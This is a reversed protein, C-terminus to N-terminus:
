DNSYYYDAKYDLVIRAKPKNAAAAYIALAEKISLQGIDACAMLYGGLHDLTILNSHYMDLQIQIHELM